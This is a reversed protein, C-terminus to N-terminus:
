KVMRNLKEIEKQQEVVYLTLEEIKRLLLKNMEAINVGSQEVEKASPIEPLHHNKKYFAEVDSLKPLKYNIDFVYDAWNQVTVYIEKAVMKGNVTLLADTHNGPVVQTQHGIITKGTNDVRFNVKNTNTSSADFVNIAQSNGNLNINLKATESAGTQAGLCTKGDGYVKFERQLSNQDLFSYALTSGVGTINLGSNSTSAYVDLKYNSNAAFGGGGVTVRGGALLAMRNTNSNIVGENFYFDKGLAYHMSISSSSEINGDKDAHIKLTSQDSLDPSQIELASVPLPSNIGVKGNQRIFVSALNNAKLIFPYDNCTGIQTIPTVNSVNNGGLVWPSAAPICPSSQVSWWHPNNPDYQPPPNNGYISILDDQANFTSVAIVTVALVLISKLKLNTKKTKM